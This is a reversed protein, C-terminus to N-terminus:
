RRQGAEGLEESAALLQQASQDPDTAAMATRGQASLSNAVQRVSEIFREVAASQTRNKLTVLVVPWPKSPLNIPLAAIGFRHANHRMVSSTFVSIYPGDSMMQMRLSVGSSVVIRAKPLSFGLDRFAEEVRTHHWYGPPPLIWPEDLLDALSIAPQCAWRTNMGAAIIMVDDDYLTQVSLNEDMLMGSHRRLLALDYQRNRLGVMDARSSTLNDVYLVVNPCRRTFHRIMEPLVTGSLGEVCAIRVEGVTPDALFQMDKASQNIEDFVAVSRKLLAEGYVTLEVGRRSRDFLRVDYTHELNAILESVTPQAVGLEAAAKAMSQHQAVTLFVFLDHLRIRRSMQRDTLVRPGSM